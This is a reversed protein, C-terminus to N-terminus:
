FTFKETGIQIFKIEPIKFTVKILTGINNLEIEPIKSSDKYKEWLQDYKTEDYDCLIKIWGLGDSVYIMNYYDFPVLVENNPSLVGCEGDKNAFYCIPIDALEYWYYVRSIPPIDWEGTMRNIVGEKKVVGKKDAQTVILQMNGTVVRVKSYVGKVGGITDILLWEDKDTQM